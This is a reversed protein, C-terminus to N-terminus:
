ILKYVEVKGARGKLEYSGAFETEFEGGLDRKTDGSILISVETDNPYLEKGLQELRSGVNVDDGIITYNLHDPTGINGVTVRGSHIGIRMGIPPKGEAARKQNDAHIAAAMALAARCAREARNKQKQPAGWYAMVSDGMFKDVTGGERDICAGILSFHHNVLAAVEPASLDQSLSSFGVMDTFLVTVNRADSVMGQVDGYRVLQEVIKKPVYVEFWRLARLMANFSRSQDNLERFVSGPLAEIKSVELDRIRGAANSFRVIPRAIRRGILIAALVSVILAGIGVILSSMMRRVEQGIEERKFFVGAILPTEGFGHIMQYFYIYRESEIDLVHGETGEPLDLIVEYRDQSQWIAALIPDRFGDLTPLPTENSRGPYDAAILPHALVHDRGYLIFRSGSASLDAGSVFNSLGEISVAAVVVGAPKEEATVPVAVSIYTRKTSDRWIPRGWDPGAAGEAVRRRVEPDKSYDYNGEAVKGHRGANAAFYAQLDNDIFLVSDIQPAAALAGTFLDGLRQKDRPDIKGSSLQEALFKAQHEAPRLQQEIRDVANSVEQHAINSLLSFTNKQALWVGVGLVGGVSILTLLGIATVLTITISFRGNWSTEAPAASSPASRSPSM